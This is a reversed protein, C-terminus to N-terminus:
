NKCLDIGVTTGREEEVMWADGGGALGGAQGGLGVGGGGGRLRGVQLLLLVGGSERKLVVGEVSCGAGGGGEGDVGEGVCVPGM